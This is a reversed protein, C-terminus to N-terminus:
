DPKPINVQRFFAGSMEDDYHQGTHILIANSKKKLEDILLAIKIFQPRAGVVVAIKPNKKM